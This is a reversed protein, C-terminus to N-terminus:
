AERRASVRSLAGLNSSTPTHKDLAKFKYVSVLFFFCRLCRCRGTQSVTSRPRRRSLFSRLHSKHKKVSHLPEM